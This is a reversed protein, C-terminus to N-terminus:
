RLHGRSNRWTPFRDQKGSHREIAERAAKREAAMDDLHKRKAARIRDYEERQARESRRRMDGAM